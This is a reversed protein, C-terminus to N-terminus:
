NLDFEITQVYVVDSYFLKVIRYHGKYLKYDKLSIEDTVSQYPDLILAIEIFAMDNNIVYWKDNLEVELVYDVGFTFSYNSNNKYVLSILDSNLDLSDKNSIFIEISNNYSDDYKSLYLDDPNFQNTCGSIIFLMIVLLIKKM